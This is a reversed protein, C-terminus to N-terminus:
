AARDPQGISDYYGALLRHAEPNAPQRELVKGILDLAAGIRGAALFARAARLQVAPPDPQTGLAASLVEAEQLANMEALVRRADAPRGAREYAMALQHRGTRQRRPDLQLVQELLPIAQAPQGTDLYLVARTLMAATDNPHKRLLDDILR